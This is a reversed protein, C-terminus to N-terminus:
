DVIQTQGGTATKMQETPSLKNFAERTITGSGGGNGGNNNRAGDGKQGTGKLISDKYAYGDILTEMAEDFDATEGPRARSNIINGHSDKAVIKGGDIAFNDGFLKQVAEAPLILKDSIVKSKGFANGLKEAKNEGLLRDREEVVPKYKAEVAEIAATKVRDIEGADVLKKDDLNAVIGLAKKAAAPDDIGDFAKLKEEAAQARTKFGKSEDTIRTITGVTAAADFPHERGDDHVYIPKGDSLVAQGEEDLKLKM